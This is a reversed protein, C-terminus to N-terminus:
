AAHITNGCGDEWRECVPCAGNDLDNRISDSAEVCDPYITSILQDDVYVEYAHCDHDYAIEVITCCDTTWTKM